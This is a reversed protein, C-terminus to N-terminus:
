LYPNSEVSSVIFSSRHARFYLYSSKPEDNM